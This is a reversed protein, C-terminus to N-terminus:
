LGGCWRGKGGEVVMKCPLGLVSGSCSQKPNKAGWGGRGGQMQLHMAVEVFWGVVEWWRGRSGNSVASGFGLLLPEITLKRAGIKEEAKHRHVCLGVVVIADYSGRGGRVM